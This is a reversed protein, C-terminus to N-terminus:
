QPPDNQAFSPSSALVPVVRVYYTLPPVIFARRCADCGCGVVVAPRECVEVRDEM